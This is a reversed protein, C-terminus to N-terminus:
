SFVDPGPRRAPPGQASPPRASPAGAPGVARAQIFLADRDSQPVFGPPRGTQQLVQRLRLADERYFTQLARLADQVEAAEHRAGPRELLAEFLRALLADSRGDFFNGVDALWPPPVRRLAVLRSGRLRPAAPLRTRPEPHGIHGLLAVLADFAERARWRPRFAGHWRLGLQEFAETRSTFCLLLRDDDRGAGIAPYLFDYAGDVNYPPRHSRILENEFLLASAESAQLRVELSAAERVLARMKRHAKRRSANRYSALRRRLNRAKGVYLVRGAEDKFLYVGPSEPLERFLGAGFKCDFQESGVARSALSDGRHRRAVDADCPTPRNVSRPDHRRMPFRAM